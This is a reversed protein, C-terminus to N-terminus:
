SDLSHLSNSLLRTEMNQQFAKFYQVTHTNGPSARRHRQRDTQRDAHPRPLVARQWWAAGCEGRGPCSELKANVDAHSGTCNNVTIIQNDSISWGTQESIIVVFRGAGLSWRTERGRREWPSQSSMGHWMTSAQVASRVFWQSNFTIIKFPGINQDKRSM